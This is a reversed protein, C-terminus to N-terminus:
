AHSQQERRDRMANAILVYIVGIMGGLVLALALALKRKSNYQFATAEVSVSAAKFGEGTAVPTLAFLKEAREVTKDNELASIKQDIEKLGEVFPESDKRSRILAAEKEISKYGRLYFPEDSTVESIVDRKGSVASTVSDFTRAELKPTGAAYKEIGLERAIAAQEKLFALRYATEKTNAFILNDRAIRLDEIAYRKKSKETNLLTAFQNKLAAQLAEDAAHTVYGQVSLWKEEDNHEFKIVWNKRIEGRDKGDVNVPPLIEVSAALRAIAIDHGADSDYDDRNLVGFKKFGERFAQRRGLLEIYLEQLPVSLVVGV